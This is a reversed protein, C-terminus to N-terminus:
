IKRRDKMRKKKEYMRKDALKMLQNIDESDNKFQSLGYAFSIEKKDGDLNFPYDKLAQSARSIIDIASNKDKNLFVVAFEDGGIRAFIDDKCIEKKFIDAFKKLIRDGMSHGYTDNIAKLNNLDIICMVFSEKSLKAKNVIEGLLKQFYNRNYIKTLSDYRSMYLINELLQANKFALAIDYSLYELLKKDDENFSEKEDTNYIDIFGMVRGDICIGCTLLQYPYRIFLKKWLNHKDKENFLDKELNNIVIPNCLKQINMNHVKYQYLDRLKYGTEKIKDPFYGKTAKYVLKDDKMFLISEMTGSPIVDLSKCLIMEFLSDIECSSLMHSNIEMIAKTANNM